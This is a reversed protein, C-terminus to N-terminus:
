FPKQYILIVAYISITQVLETVPTQLKALM